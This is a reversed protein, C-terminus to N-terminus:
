EEKHKKEMEEQLFSIIKDLAAGGPSSLNIFKVRTEYIINKIKEHSQLVEGELNVMDSFHPVKLEVVLRTGPNFSLSTILCVGGRSINKLQTVEHKEDPQDAEYYRVIFNKDIRVYQRREHILQEESFDRVVKELLAKAERSLNFFEIHNEYVSHPIKELSSRVKGELKIIQRLYPLNLEMFLPTGPTYPHATSFCLGGSSLDRLQSIEKLASPNNEEYYTIYFAKKVRPTHRKKEFFEMM